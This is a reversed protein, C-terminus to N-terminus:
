GRARATGAPLPPGRGGELSRLSASEDGQRTDSGGVDSIAELPRRCAEVLTEIEYLKLVGGETFREILDISERELFSVFLQLSRMANSITNSALNRMRLETVAFLTPSFLPTGLEDVLLPLREGSALRVVKVRYESM